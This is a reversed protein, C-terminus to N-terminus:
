RHKGTSDLISQKQTSGYSAAVNAEASQDVVKERMTCDMPWVSSTHWGASVGHQMVRVQHMQSIWHAGRRSGDVAM